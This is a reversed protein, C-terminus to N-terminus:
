ELNFPFGDTAAQLLFQLLCLCVVEAADIRSDGQFKIVKLLSFSGILLALDAFCQSQKFHCDLASRVLWVCVVMAGQAIEGLSIVLLAVFYQLM